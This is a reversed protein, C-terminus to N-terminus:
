LCKTLAKRIAVVSENKIQQEIELNERAAEEKYQELREYMMLMIRNSIRDSNDDYKDRDRECIDVFNRYSERYENYADFRPRPIIKIFEALVNGELKFMRIITALISALATRM